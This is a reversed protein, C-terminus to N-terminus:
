PRVVSTGPTRRRNSQSTIPAAVLGWPNGDDVVFSKRNEAPLDCHQRRELRQKQQEVPILAPHPQAGPQPAKSTPQHGHPAAKRISGSGCGPLALKCISTM